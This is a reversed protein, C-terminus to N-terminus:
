LHFVMKIGEANMYNQVDEDNEECAGEVSKLGRQLARDVHKFHPANDSVIEKPVGRRAVFRRLALVFHESSLYRVVELHVARIVMCTFLCIWVKEVDHRGTKVYLPGLYDLGTFLFPTSSTVRKHPLPTM